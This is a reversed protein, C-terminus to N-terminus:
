NIKYNTPGVKKIIICNLVIHQAAEWAIFKKSKKYNDLLDQLSNDDSTKRFGELTHDKVGNFKYNPNLSWNTFPHPVYIDVANFEVDTGYAFDKKFNFYM